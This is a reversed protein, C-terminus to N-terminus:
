SQDRWVQEKYSRVKEPELRPVPVDEWDDRSSNWRVWVQPDKGPIPVDSRCNLRVLAVQKDESLRIVEKWTNLIAEEPTSGCGDRLPTCYAGSSISGKMISDLSVYWKSPGPRFKDRTQVSACKTIRGLREMIKEIVLAKM